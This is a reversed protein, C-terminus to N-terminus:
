FAELTEKIIEGVTPHPFIMDALQHATLGSDMAVGALVILESCPGGLMHVGLITNRDADLLIKCYGEARENEAVFRGAFAMPLIQKTYPIHNDALAEETAGVGAIEPHTYVVGPIATYNMPKPDRGLLHDVATEAERVATHALLSRGNVDGAAYVGPLSTRLFEDTEVGRGRMQLNLDQFANTRPRRGVSLLIQEAEVVSTNGEYEISVKGPALAVVKHGLYFAVGKKLYTARLKAALESDLGTLIEPMMEIVSVQAGMECFYAAFEMGIVGGGIIAISAPIAELQLAERSTLYPTQDIGPIPPIVTESGTCLLLHHASYLENNCRIRYPENDAHPEVTASGTILQAGSANVKAKVGAVLKRVVKNKRALIKAQDASSAQATIGYHQANQVTQLVKASYLFAKTPICGENLCTGGLANEEFLVTTLGGQAARAAATYGAPGGGIIALDYIM